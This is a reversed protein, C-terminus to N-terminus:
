LVAFIKEVLQGLGLMKLQIQQARYYDYSRLGMMAVWVLVAVLGVAAMLTRVRFRLARMSATGRSSVRSAGPRGGAPALEIPSCSGARLGM